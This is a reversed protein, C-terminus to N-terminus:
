PLQGPTVILLNPEGAHLIKHPFSRALPLGTFTSLAFCSKTM